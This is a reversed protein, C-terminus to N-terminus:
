GGGIQGTTHGYRNGDTRVGAPGLLRIRDGVLVDAVITVERSSVTTFASSLASFLTAASSKFGFVVVDVHFGLASAASHFGENAVDYELLAEM